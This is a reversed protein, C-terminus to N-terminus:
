IPAASTTPTIRAIPSCAVGLGVDVTAAEGVLVTEAVEVGSDEVGVTSGVEGDGVSTSDMGGVSDGVSTSVMSGVSDGVSTSVIGGVADGVSTSMSDGVAAALADGVSVAASLKV